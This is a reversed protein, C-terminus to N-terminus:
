LKSNSEEVRIDPAAFRNDKDGGVKESKSMIEKRQLEDLRKRTEAKITKMMVNNPHWKLTQETKYLLRNNEAIELDREATEIKVDLEKNQHGPKCRRQLNELRTKCKAICGNLDELQPDSWANALAGSSLSHNELMGGPVITFLGRRMQFNPPSLLNHKVISHAGIVLDANANALVLFRMDKFVQASSSHYWSLRIAGEPRPTDGTVTTGGNQERPTLKDFKTYGLSRALELSVINGQLCGTDISCQVQQHREPVPNELPFVSVILM